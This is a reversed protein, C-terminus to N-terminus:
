GPYTSDPPLETRTCYEHVIRAMIERLLEVHILSSKSYDVTHSDIKVFHQVIRTSSVQKISTLYFSPIHAELVKLIGKTPAM